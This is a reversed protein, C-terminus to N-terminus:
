GGADGQKVLQRSRGIGADGTAGCTGDRRELSTLSRMKSLALSM